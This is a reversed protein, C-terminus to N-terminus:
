FLQCFNQPLVIDPTNGNDAHFNGAASSHFQGYFFGEFGASFRDGPLDSHDGGITLNPLLNLNSHFNSGCPTGPEALSQCCNPMRYVSLVAWIVTQLFLRCTVPRCATEFKSLVSVSPNSGEHRPNASLRM